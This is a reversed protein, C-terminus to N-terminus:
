PSLNRNPVRRLVKRLLLYNRGRYSTVEATIVFESIGAKAENEMIELFQNPLIEMREVGRSSDDAQFLFRAGGDEGAVYKGPREVVVEGEPLLPEGPKSGEVGGSRDPGEGGSTWPLIPKATERRQLLEQLVRAQEPRRFTTGSGGPRSTPQSTAVQSTASAKQEESVEQAAGIYALAISATMMWSVM